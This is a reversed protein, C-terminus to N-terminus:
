KCIYYIKFLHLIAFTAVKELSRSVERSKELSKIDITSAIVSDTVIVIADFVGSISPEGTKKSTQKRNEM